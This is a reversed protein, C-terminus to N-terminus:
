GMSCVRDHFIKRVCGVGDAYEVDWPIKVGGQEAKVSEWGVELGM